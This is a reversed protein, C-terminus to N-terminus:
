FLLVRVEVFESYMGKVLQQPDYRKICTRVDQRALCDQTHTHTHTHTHAGARTRTHQTHTHTLACLVNNVFHPNVPPPLGCASGALGTHMHALVCHEFADAATGFGGGVCVCVCVCVCLFLCAYVCVFVCVCVCVVLM